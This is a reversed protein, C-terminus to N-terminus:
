CTSPRASFLLIIIEGNVVDFTLPCNWTLDIVIALFLLM